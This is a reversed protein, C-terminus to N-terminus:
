LALFLLASGVFFGTALRAADHLPLVHGLTRAFGAAVLFFLPPKEVFPEGALSPVVWDGHKLFDLVIGFTYAEDPKCPGHGILWILVWGSSVILLLLTNRPAAGLRMRPQDLHAGGVSRYVM